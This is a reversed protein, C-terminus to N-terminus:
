HAYHTGGGEEGGSSPPDCVEDHSHHSLFEGGDRTYGPSEWRDLIRCYPCSPVRIGNPVHERVHALWNGDAAGLNSEGVGGLPILRTFMFSPLVLPLGPIADTVRRNREHGFPKAAATWAFVNTVSTESLSPLPSCVRCAATAGMVDYRQKVSGMLPFRADGQRDLERWARWMGTDYFYWPHSMDELVRCDAIAQATVVDGLGADDAAAVLADVVDGDQAGLGMVGKQVGVSFFESNVFDNSVGAPPIDGWGPWSLLTAAAKAHNSRFVHRCIAPWDRAEAAWYFARDYLPHGGEVTAVPLLRANDAGAAVGSGAVVQLMAAYDAGKEPWTPSAHGEASRMAFTVIGTMEDNVPAGNRKATENAAWFGVMPGAVALREQIAAIGAMATYNTECAAALHLLNLEGILNLTVGQWRAAMLAAADGANQVRNKNRVALFIDTEMMFLIVLGVLMFALILVIQGSKSRSRAMM